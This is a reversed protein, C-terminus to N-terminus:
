VHARGIEWVFFGGPAFDLVLDRGQVDIRRLTCDHLCVRPPAGRRKQYSFRM